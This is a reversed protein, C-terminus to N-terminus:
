TQIIPNDLISEDTVQSMQGTVEAPKFEAGTIIQMEPSQQIQEIVEQITADPNITGSQIVEVKQQSQLWSLGGFTV